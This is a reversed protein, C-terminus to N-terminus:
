LSGCAAKSTVHRHTYALPPRRTFDNTPDLKILPHAAIEIPLAIVVGDVKSLNIDSTCQTLHARWGGGKKGETKRRGVEDRKRKISPVPDTAAVNKCIFGCNIIISITEEAFGCLAYDNYAQSLRVMRHKLLSCASGPSLSVKSDGCIETYSSSPTLM